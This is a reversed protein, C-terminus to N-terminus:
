ADYISCLLSTQSGARSVLFGGDFGFWAWHIGIARVLCIRLSSGLVLAKASFERRMTSFCEKHEVWHRVSDNDFVVLMVFNLCKRSSEIVV